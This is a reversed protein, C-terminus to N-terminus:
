QLPNCGHRLGLRCLLFPFHQLPGQPGREKGSACGVSVPVGPPVAACAGRAAVCLPGGSVRSGSFGVVPAGSLFGALDGGM